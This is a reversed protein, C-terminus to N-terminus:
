HIKIVKVDGCESCKMRQRRHIPLSNPLKITGWFIEVQPGWPEWKHQCRGKLWTVIVWAGCGLVTVALTVWLQPSQWTWDTM